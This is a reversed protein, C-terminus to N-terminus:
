NLNIGPIRKKVEKLLGNILKNHEENIYTHNEVRYTLDEFRRKAHESKYDFNEFDALLTAHDDELIKINGISVHHDFTSSSFGDRSKDFDSIYFDYLKRLSGRFDKNSYRGAERCADLKSKIIIAEEHTFVSRGKM